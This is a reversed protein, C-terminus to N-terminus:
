SVARIAQMAPHDRQPEDLHYGQAYDVGFDRLMDFVAESDVCEAVTVKNLGKAVDLIARLFIQNEPNSTLDRIFQGDIKLM